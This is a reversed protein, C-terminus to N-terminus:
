NTLKRLTVKQLIGRIPSLNPLDFDFNGGGGGGRGAAWKTVVFNKQINKPLVPSLEKQKINELIM